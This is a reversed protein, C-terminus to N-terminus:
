EGGHCRDNANINNDFQCTQGLLLATDNPDRLQFNNNTFTGLGTSAFTIGESEDGNSSMRNGILTISAKDDMDDIGVGAGLSLPYVLQSNQILLTSAAASLQVRMGAKVGSMTVHNLIVHSPKHNPHSNSNSVTDDILINKTELHINQLILTSAPKLHIKCPVTLAGTQDRITNGGLRVQGFGDKDIHRRCAQNLDALTTVARHSKEQAIVARGLVIIAFSGVVMTVIFVRRTLM